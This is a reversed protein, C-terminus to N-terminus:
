CDVTDTLVDMAMATAGRACPLRPVGRRFSGAAAGDGGGDGATADAAAAAADGGGNGVALANRRETGGAPAMPSQSPDVTIM